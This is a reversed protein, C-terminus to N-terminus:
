ETDNKQLEIYFSTGEKEKSEFWIRGRHLDIIQKVIFLGLGTTTEGETGKRNAKTFRHFVSDQLEEPIGIGNDSIRIIVHQPKETLSIDIEGGAHTFKIANSLLNEIVRSFKDRNVLLYVPKEPLDFNITIGKESAADVDTVVQSKIFGTIETQEKDLNDSELKGVVLLDRILSYATECSKSILSIFSLFQMKNAPKLSESQEVDNKLFGSVTKINHLPNKLDHAVLHMQQEDFMHKFAEEQLKQQTVDTFITYSYPVGNQTFSISNVDCFIISGDKRNLCTQFNYSARNKVWLNYHLLHWDEKHDTCTFDIIKKGTIDDVNNYGLMSVMVQNAQCIEMNHSLINNGSASCEFVKKFRAESEQYKEKRVLNGVTLPLGDDGMYRLIELNEHLAKNEAELQIIRDLLNDRNEM